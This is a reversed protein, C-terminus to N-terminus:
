PQKVLYYSGAICHVEPRAVLVLRQTGLPILKLDRSLRRSLEAQPQREGDLQTVWDYGYADLQEYLQDYALDYSLQEEGTTVVPLLCVSRATDQALITVAGGCNNLQRQLYSLTAPYTAVVRCCIARQAQAAPMQKFLAEADTKSGPFYRAADEQSILSSLGLTTDALSGKLCYSLAAPLLDYDPLETALYWEIRRDTRFVEYRCATNDDVENEPLLLLDLSGVALEVQADTLDSYGSYSAGGLLPKGLLDGLTETMQVIATPVGVELPRSVTASTDLYIFAKVYSTSEVVDILSDSLPESVLIREAIKDVGCSLLLDFDRYLDINFDDNVPTNPPLWFYLQNDAVKLLEAWRWYLQGDRPYEPQAAAETPLLWFLLLAAGWALFKILRAHKM